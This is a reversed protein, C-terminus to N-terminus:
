NHVAELRITIVKEIGTRRDRIRREGTSIIQMGEMNIGWQMEKIKEEGMNSGMGGQKIRGEVMSNQDGRIREEGMNNSQGVEWDEGMEEMVRSIWGEENHTSGTMPSNSIVEILTELDQHAEEEEMNCKQTRIEGESDTRDEMSITKMGLGLIREEVMCSNTGTRRWRGMHDVLEGEMELVWEGTIEQGM